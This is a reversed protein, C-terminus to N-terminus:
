RHLANLADIVHPFYYISLSCGLGIAVAKLSQRTVGIVMGVLFFSIAITKGLYGLTWGEVTSYIRGFETDDSTAEDEHGDHDDEQDYHSAERDFRYGVKEAEHEHKHSDFDARAIGALMLVSAIVSLFIIKKM